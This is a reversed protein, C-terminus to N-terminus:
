TLVKKINATHWLPLWNKITDGEQMCHHLYMSSTSMTILFKSFCTIQFHKLSQYQLLLIFDHRYDIFYWILRMKQILYVLTYKIQESHMCLRFIQPQGLEDLINMKGRKSVSYSPLYTYQSHSHIHHKYVENAM